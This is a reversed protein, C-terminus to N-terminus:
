PNWSCAVDDLLVSEYGYVEDVSLWLVASHGAAGALDFTIKQWDHVDCALATGTVYQKTTTDLVWATASTCDPKVWFSVMGGSAPVDFAQNITAGGWNQVVALVAAYGGSHSQTTISTEETRWPALNGTEFGGNEILTTAKTVTVAASARKSPDALSTAVVHYTGPYTPATYLGSSNVAGGPAGETVAWSVAVNSASFQATSGAVITVSSPTVAVTVTVEPQPRESSFAVDDVQLVSAWDYGDLAEATLMLTASHGRLPLLDFGGREMGGDNWTAGLSYHVEFMDTCRVPFGYTQRTLEDRLVISFYEPVGNACSGRYQLWLGGADVPVDFTQELYGVTHVGPDSTLEAYKTAGSTYPRISVSGASSWGLIGNEFGGNVLLRATVTVTVTAFKTPDAVSTVVVHYTGIAPPATYLGNSTVTGGAAGETVAWSVGPDITGTVSATLQTSGGTPVSASGPNVVVSVVPTTFTFDASASSGAGNKSLVQFHYTTGGRLGTLTLAHATVQAPNSTDSGYTTTTGWKVQSDSLVDTTWRITAQEATVGSAAVSSIIPRGTVTVTAADSRSPDAVSTAVVHYTGTITPAAYLGAPSVSGGAVGEQVSWTVRTDSANGVTAAFQATQGSFLPTTKPAVTVSVQPVTVTATDTKSLDAVSKAVVHYTGAITPATYLGTTTVTGGAPEQVSWAVRTDTANAVSASFQATQGVFVTQTKPAIAVGVLLVTVKTSASKTLDAVPRAVVTYTGGTVPATYLGSPTVSGGATGEQVSWVVDTTSANSVTATFQVTGGTNVVPNTPTLSIGVPPVPVTVTAVDTASPDASSRAVVHYTGATAPATYMGASTVTGGAPEQVSWTVGTDAAHAVTASFWTSGTAACVTSKPSVSVTVAQVAWNIQVTVVLTGGEPNVAALTVGLYWTGNVSNGTFPYGVQAGSLPLNAAVPHGLTLSAVQVGDQRGGALQVSTVAAEIPAYFPGPAIAGIPRGYGDYYITWTLTSSGTASTMCNACAPSPLVEAPFVDEASAAGPFLACVLAALLIRKM